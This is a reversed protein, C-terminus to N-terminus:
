VQFCAPLVTMLFANDSATVRDRAAPHEPDPELDALAEVAAAASASTGIQPFSLTPGTTMLPAWDFGSVAGAAAAAVLLDASAEPSAVVLAARM